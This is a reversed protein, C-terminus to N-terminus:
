AKVSVNSIERYGKSWARSESTGLPHPNSTAPHGRLASIQGDLRAQATVPTM